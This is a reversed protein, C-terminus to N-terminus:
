VVVCAVYEHGHCTPCHRDVPKGAADGCDPCAAGKIAEGTQQAAFLDGEICRATVYHDAPYPHHPAGYPMTYTGDGQELLFGACFCCCADWETETTDGELYFSPMWGHDIAQDVSPETAGCLSCTVPDTTM